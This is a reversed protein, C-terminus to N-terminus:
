ALRGPRFFDRMTARLVRYGSPKPLNESM